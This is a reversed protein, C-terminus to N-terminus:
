AILPPNFIWVVQQNNSYFGDEFAGRTICNNNIFRRTMQHAFSGTVQRALYDPSDTVRKLKILPM